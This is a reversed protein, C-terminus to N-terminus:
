QPIVCETLLGVPVADKAPGFQGTPQWRLSASKLSGVMRYNCV